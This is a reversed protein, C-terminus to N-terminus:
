IGLPRGFQRDGAPVCLRLGAKLPSVVPSFRPGAVLRVAWGRQLPSSSDGRGQPSVALSALRVVLQMTLCLMLFSEALNKLLQVKKKLISESFCPDCHLSFFFKRVDFM